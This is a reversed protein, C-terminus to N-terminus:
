AAAAAEPSAYWRRTSSDYVANVLSQMGAMQEQIRIENQKRDQKAKYAASNAQERQKEAAIAQQNLWAQAKVSDYAYRKKFIRQFTRWHSRQM